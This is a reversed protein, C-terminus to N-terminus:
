GWRGERGVWNLDSQGAVGGPHACGQGPFPGRIEGCCVERRTAGPWKKNRGWGTKSLSEGKQKIGPREKAVVEACPCVPPAGAPTHARAGALCLWWSLRRPPRMGRAAQSRLCSGVALFLGLPLLNWTLLKRSGSVRTRAPAMSTGEARGAGWSAAGAGTVEQPSTHEPWPAHIGQTHM